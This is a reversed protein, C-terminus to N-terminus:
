MVSRVSGSAGCRKATGHKCDVRINLIKTIDQALLNVDGCFSNVADVYKCISENDCKSCPGTVAVSCKSETCLSVKEFLYLQKIGSYRSSDVKGYFDEATRVWIRGDALSKYIVCDSVDSEISGEGLILYLYKFNHSREQEPITERKFHQVVTGAEFRRIEKSM